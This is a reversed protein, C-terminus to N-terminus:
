KVFKVHSKLGARAQELAEEKKNMNLLALAKMALSEGHNPVDKLVADAAKVAKKYLKDDILKFIEMFHSKPGSPLKVGPTASLPVAATAAAATTKAASM